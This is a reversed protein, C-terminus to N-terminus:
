HFFITELFLFLLLAKKKQWQPIPSLSPIPKSGSSCGTLSLSFFFYYYHKPVIISSLLEVSHTCHLLQGWFFCSLPFGFRYALEDTVNTGVCTAGAQLLALITPATSTAAPHTKAWEPSGFGVVHGKVEFRNWMVCACLCKKWTWIAHMWIWYSISSNKSKNFNLCTSRHTFLERNPKKYLCSENYWCDPEWM